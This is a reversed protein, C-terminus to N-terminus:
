IWLTLSNNEFLRHQNCTGGHFLTDPFPWESARRLGGRDTASPRLLMKRPTTMADTAAALVLSLSTGGSSTAPAAEADVPVIHEDGHFAVQAAHGSNMASSPTAGRNRPWARRSGGCAGSVSARRAPFIRANQLATVGGADFM